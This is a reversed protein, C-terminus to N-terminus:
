KLDCVFAGQERTSHFPVGQERCHEKLQRLYWPTITHDVIVQKPRICNFLDETRPKLGNGLILYDVELPRTATHYNYFDSGPILVRRGCFSLCVDSGPDGDTGVVVPQRVRHSNWYAGATKHLDGLDSTYAYNNYGSIFNVHTHHYSAFVIIKRAHSSNQLVSTHTVFLGIACCLAGVLVPYKRSHVYYFALCLCVVFLISQIGNFAIVSVSAPLQQVWAASGNLLTLLLNLIWAVATSLYPVFSVLLLGASFCLIAMSLPVAILNTLLFYNPFTQFYYLTFPVTGVQAAVSVTILGWLWRVVRHRPSFLRSMKPQLYVISLVSAYSLQFSVHYLLDPNGLLMFFASMSLTNYISSRRGFMRGFAVFSLMLTARFTSPALGTIFAYVWTLLLVIVAKVQPFAAKGRDFFALLFNLVMYIIGVHLGSVALIHAIGSMSYRERLDADLEDVYGFSLASLVALNEQPFGFRRFVEFFHRQCRGALATISLREAHEMVEWRGSPVYATAGIGKRRLYRAYDFGGPNDLSTPAAFEADVLLRDGPLLRSVLTDKEFYIYGRGQSPSVSLSDVFRKTKVEVLFSRSKEVPVHVVEVEFIGREGVHDFSNREEQRVCLSQSLAFLFVGVGCGFLWRFKYRVDVPRILASSLLFVASLGYLGLVIGDPMHWWDYLVIGAVLPLLLRFFPVRSLFKM